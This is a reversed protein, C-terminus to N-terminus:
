MAFALDGVDCYLTRVFGDLTSGPGSFMIRVRAYLSGSLLGM